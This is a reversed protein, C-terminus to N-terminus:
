AAAATGGGGSGAAPRGAAGLLVAGATPRVLGAAAKLCTTKGSGNPGLLAVVEGRGVDLSVADAARVAGFTKTFSRYAIM